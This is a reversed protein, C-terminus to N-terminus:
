NRSKVNLKFFETVSIGDPGKATVSVRHDSVLAADNEAVLTMSDIKLTGSPITLTTGGAVSVGSPLDSIEIEVADDFNKRVIALTVKNADGQRLSQDAPAIITLQRGSTGTVTSSMKGCAGAIGLGLISIALLGLQSNRM